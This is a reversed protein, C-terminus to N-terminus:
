RNVALTSKLRASGIGLSGWKDIGIDDEEAGLQVLSVRM